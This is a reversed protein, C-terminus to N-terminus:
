PKVLRFEDERTKSKSAFSHRQDRRREEEKAEGEEEEDKKENGRRRRRRRRGKRARRNACEMDVIECSVDLRIRKETSDNM